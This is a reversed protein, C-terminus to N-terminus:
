WSTEVPCIKFCFGPHRHSVEGGVERPLAHGRRKAVEGRHGARHTEGLAMARALYLTLLTTRAITSSPRVSGILGTQALVDDGRERTQRTGLISAASLAARKM